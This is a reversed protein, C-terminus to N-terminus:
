HFRFCGIRQEGMPYLGAIDGMLPIRFFLRLWEGKLDDTAETFVVLYRSVEALPFMALDIGVEPKRSSM